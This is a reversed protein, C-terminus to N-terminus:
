FKKHLDENYNASFRKIVSCFNKEPCFGLKCKPGLLEYPIGVEVLKSIILNVFTVIENDATTCARVGVFGFPDFIHYGDLFLEFNLKLALPLIYIAEAMSINNNVMKQYLDLSKIYKEEIEDLIDKEVPPFFFSERVNMLARDIANYINEFSQKMTRHRKLDTICALSISSAVRVLIADKIRNVFIKWKKGKEGFERLDELEYKFNKIIDLLGERLYISEFKMNENEEKSSKKDIDCFEGNFINQKNFSTDCIINLGEKTVVKAHTLCFDKIMRSIEKIENPYKEENREIERIMGIITQLPLNYFGNTVISLPLLKRANDISTIKTLKQYITLLEKCLEEYDRKFDSHLIEDPILILREDFVIRRTSSIIYSGFPFHSFYFESIKSGEIWFFFHVSTTLSAHGRRTSERHFINVFKEDCAELAKDFDEIKTTLIGSTALIKDPGFDKYKPSYDLLKVKLYKSIPQM